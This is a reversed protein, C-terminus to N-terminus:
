AERLWNIEVCERIQLRARHLLVWLNSSTINLEKCIEDSKLEEMLQLVFVSAQKEPLRHLCEQLVKQFEESEIGADTDVHWPQPIKDSRWAGSMNGEHIFYDDNTPEHGMENNYSTERQRYAKRYYDIIKRKLISILWTKETSQGKFDSAAKLASVFTDQVLDLAADHDNVRSVAYRYLIDGYAHAWQQPAIPHNETM